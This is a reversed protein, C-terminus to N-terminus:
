SLMVGDAPPAPPIAPPMREKLVASIAGILTNFSYPKEVFHVIGLDAAQAKATEAINASFVIAPINHTGAMARLKALMTLGDMVPMKIDAVVAHPLAKKAIDLGELGNRAELVQFGSSKLRLVVARVIDPDDEVVLILQSNNMTEGDLKMM